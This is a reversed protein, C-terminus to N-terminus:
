IVSQGSPIVRLITTSKNPKGNLTRFISRHLSGLNSGRLEAVLLAWTQGNRSRAIFHMCEECYPEYRSEICCLISLRGKADYLRARFKVENELM